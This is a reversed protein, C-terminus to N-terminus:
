APPRRLLARWAYPTLAAVILAGVLGPSASGLQQLLFGGAAPGIIQALNFASASLGLVGGYQEAPISKTLVSNLVTNLLGFSLALPALAVLLFPISPAAAWGILGVSLVPLAGVVLRREEIRATLWGIAVGQVLIVLFGVYTLILGVAEPSAGFRLVAYLPFIGQFLAIAVGAVFRTELLPGVLPRRLTDRVQRLRFHSPRSGALEARREPTLSEPLFLYLLGVGAGAVATAAIAPARFGLRSLLGGLAPGIVFGAGFAAGLVGLGRAREQPATVDAVYAQATAFVASLGDLVRAVFLVWLANALALLLFSVATGLFSFFLVPRRGVRDSLRGLAPAAFLQAVAYTAVLLGITAASAGLSEAYFPLLPLILSYGLLDVFVILMLVLLPRSAPRFM